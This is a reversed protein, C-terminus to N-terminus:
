PGCRSQGIQNFVTCTTNPLHLRLISFHLEVRLNTENKFRNIVAMRRNDQTAGGPLGLRPIASGTFMGFYAVIEISHPYRYLLRIQHKL